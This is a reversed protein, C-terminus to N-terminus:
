RTATRSSSTPIVHLGDWYSDGSTTPGSRRVTDMDGQEFADYGRQLADTNESM